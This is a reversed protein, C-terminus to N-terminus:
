GLLNQALKMDLRPDRHAVPSIVIHEDPKGTSAEFRADYRGQWRKYVYPGFMATPFAPGCWGTLM